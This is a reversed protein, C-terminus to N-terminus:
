YQDSSLQNEIAAIYNRTIFLLERKQKRMVVESKKKRPKLYHAAFRNVGLSLVFPGYIDFNIYEGVDWGTVSARPIPAKKMKSAM